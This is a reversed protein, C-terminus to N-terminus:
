LFLIAQFVNIYDKETANLGSVLVIKTNCNPFIKLVDKIMLSSQIGDLEPMFYDIFIIDYFLCCSSNVKEKVKELAHSGNQAEDSQISLSNAYNKLISRIGIEDDVIM